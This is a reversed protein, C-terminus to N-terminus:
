IHTHKHTHETMDLEKHDCALSRQRHFKGPLFIPTPPWEGSAWTKPRRCQCASEKGSCWRPLGEHVKLLLSDMQLVPSGPEIGPLLLDGPSPFQLEIWYEQRSFELCPFGPPSCDMSNCLTSCSQAVLVKVESKM